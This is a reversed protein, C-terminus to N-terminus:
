WSGSAAIAPRDSVDGRGPRGAEPRKRRPVEVLPCERLPGATNFALYTINGYPWVPLAANPAFHFLYFLQRHWFLPNQLLFCADRQSGSQKGMRHCATLQSSERSAFAESRKQYRTRIPQPLLFDRFVRPNPVCKAACVNSGGISWCIRGMRGM